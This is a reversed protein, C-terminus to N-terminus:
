KPRDRFLRTAAELNLQRMSEEDYWREFMEGTGLRMADKVFAVAVAEELEKHAEPHMYSEATARPVTHGMFRSVLPLRILAEGIREVLLRQDLTSLDIEGHGDIKVIRQM